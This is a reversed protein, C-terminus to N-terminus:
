GYLFARLKPVSSSKIEELSGEVLVRGEDLLAVRDAVRFACRVDHTVVLSTVQQEHQLRRILESITDSTLPDLGTTPEDYIVIEPKVVVTRALGVRKQMGGSLESPLKDEIGELDIWSLVEAVRARIEAESLDTHQELPFAINEGVTMSDFLAAGQFLFGTKRWVELWQDDRTFANVETGDVRVTGRDVSLLGVLMSVLVSKGSGSGGMLVLTSGRGVELSLGRLVHNDGFSKYVDLFEIAATTSRVARTGGPTAM